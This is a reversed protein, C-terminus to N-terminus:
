SGSRPLSDRLEERKHRQSTDTQTLHGTSNPEPLAITATGADVDDSSQNVLLPGWRHPDSRGDRSEGTWHAGGSPAQSTSPEPFALTYRPPPLAHQAQVAGM